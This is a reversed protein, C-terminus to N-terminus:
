ISYTSKDSESKKKLWRNKFPLKLIGRKSLFTILAILLLKV